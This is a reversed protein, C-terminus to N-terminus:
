KKKKLVILEVGPPPLSRSISFSDGVNESEEAVIFNQSDTLRYRRMIFAANGWPLNKVTLNFGADDKYQIKRQPLHKLKSFDPIHIGKTFDPPPQMIHPKYGAPIEYTSILIQVTRGDKSRGALVAYGDKDAGTVAVREPTRQMEGMARIAYAPRYPKGSLDFLGMWAADGRYFIARSVDTDELYILTDAVFAANDASRLEDQMDTTFDASRNYESLISAAHPYGHTDLVRRIEHAVLSADLPDASFDAYYHWSYFDLPLKHARCYDLFGERFPGGSYSFAITDGGVKLSPDASKLAKATKEYLSYFQEPTGSWFLEPENWFEWYRIHDHFGNDWGQNYHMEVHKVVDAFKNFNVPPNIRAGFSRGIRYYVEAGSAIIAAIAQDTPGFRYSAPNEPDANWDPFITAANGADVLKRRQTPDPVLWALTQNDFDFISDLETPGMYDHTRVMDFLFEHYQKELNPLGDMVPAPGGNVGELPRIAGSVKAVDVTVNRNQAAAISGFFLLALSAAIKTKVM